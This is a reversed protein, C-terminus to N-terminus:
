EQKTAAMGDNMEEITNALRQNHQELAEINQLLDQVRRKLIAM